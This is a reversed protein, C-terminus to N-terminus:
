LGLQHTSLFFGKPGQVATQRLRGRGQHHHVQDVDQGHLRRDKDVLEQGGSCAPIM